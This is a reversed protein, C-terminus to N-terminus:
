FDRKVFEEWTLNPRGRCRKNNSTRRIVGNHIPSEV